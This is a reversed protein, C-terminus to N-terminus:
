SIGTLQRSLTERFYDFYKPGWDCAYDLATLLNEQFQKRPTPSRRIYQALAEITEKSIAWRIYFPDNPDLIWTRKLFTLDTLPRLVVENSLKAATSIPWGYYEYREKIVNHNYFDSILPHITSMEDDGYLRRAVYLNYANLQAYEIQNARHCIDLYLVYALLQGLWVM